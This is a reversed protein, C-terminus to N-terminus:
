TKTQRPEYSNRKRSEQQVFYDLQDVTEFFEDVDNAAKLVHDADPHNQVFEMAEAVDGRLRQSLRIGLFRLDDDNLGRVYDRLGDNQKRM